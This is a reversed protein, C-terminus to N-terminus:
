SRYAGLKVLPVLTEDLTLSGHQGIMHQPSTDKERGDYYAVRSRAAVLVEGIRPRLSAGVAGFLGLAIAEDRSMIWAREGESASWRQQVARASDADRTYLHLMRPEGGVHEVGIWRADGAPVIIQQHAAIDVMGHDATVIVGVNQGADRSLRAIAGDLREVMSLWRDSDVGHRHGLADLEPVYLYVLAGSTARAITLAREIRAEVDAVGIFSAGGTTAHSFGTQAYEPKSVVFSPEARAAREALLGPVPQWDAPIVGEEWGRLQNALIGAEPVLTRYGFIGHRGPDAGTLLSTLATATTSPFTTRARSGPSRVADALFRAHGARERLQLAGVGDLVLM